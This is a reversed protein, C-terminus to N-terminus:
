SRRSTRSAATTRRLRSRLDTTNAYYALGAVYYSNQKPAYPCTGMVEGLATVTKSGCSNDFTGAGGGVSDNVGSVSGNRM